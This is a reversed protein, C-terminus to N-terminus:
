GDTEQVAQAAQKIAAVARDIDAEASAWSSVSVRIAPDGDWITAGMWTEGSAQVAALVEATAEGARFLVQNLVVDNLVELGSIAALQDALRQALRCCRDVMDAVGSRGLSRLAAYVAVGRARRSADPVFDMADYESGTPALYDGHYSMAARHAAPDACVAVGSDYPVNLWKHADFAWSDASAAGAALAALGPGAALAWLGFAGDIHVWGGRDQVPAVLREIPDFSGTNVEGAQLVAILPGPRDVADLFPEPLVRGQDDTDVLVLAETGIGLLRLARDVTAHRLRGTVVTIPPSGALGLRGVDWGTRRLVEFRAAALCTVHAMQCGTVFGASATEPLGLAAKVWAGAVEEVVAAAPSSVFSFANQDWGAALWDAALAAPLHGGTVFGFYRGGTVSVLHPECADALEDIVQAADMGAEPLADGLAARLEASSSRPFVSRDDVTALYDLARDAARRVADNPDSM